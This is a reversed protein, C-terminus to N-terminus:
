NPFQPRTDRGIELSEKLDPAQSRIKSVESVDVLQSVKERGPSSYGRNAEPTTWQLRLKTEDDLAFFNASRTFIRQLVHAPIPHNKLYIFGVTQFGHLIKQAPPSANM